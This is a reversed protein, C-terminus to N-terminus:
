INICILLLSLSNTSYLRKNVVTTQLTRAVCIALYLLLAILYLPVASNLPFLSSSLPFFFFNEKWKKLAFVVPTIYGERVVWIWRSFLRVGFPFFVAHRCHVAVLKKFSTLLIYFNMWWLPSCCVLFCLLLIFMSKKKGNELAFTVCSILFM